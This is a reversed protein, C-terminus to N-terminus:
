LDTKYTRSRGIFPIMNYISKQTQSNQKLCHKQSEDMKNGTAVIRERLAKYYEM